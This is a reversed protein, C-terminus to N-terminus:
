VMVEELITGDRTTIDLSSPSEIGKVGFCM